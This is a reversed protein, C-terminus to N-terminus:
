RLSEYYTLCKSVEEESVEVNVEVDGIRPLLTMLIKGSENKKDAKILNIVKGIANSDLDLLGFHAIILENIRDLSKKDLHLKEVSIFSACIIGAAVAEGHLIDDSNNLFYTELAHGVTHGFNLAKRINEEFPDIEVISNKIAISDSIAEPWNIDPLPTTELYTYYSENAILAHKIMEAFGSKMQREELTDLFATNIITAIPESFVGIQNKLNKYNVGTKGGISADVQALLTTPINIFEIGRKFTSACFGGLDCILGGGLCILLSSRDMNQELMSEWVAKCTQLNKNEEGPPITIESSYNLSDLLPLCHKRTNDDVLIAVKSYNHTRIFESLTESVNSSVIVNQPLM